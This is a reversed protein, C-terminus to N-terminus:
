YVIDFSDFMKGHMDEPAQADWAVDVREVRSLISGRRLKAAYNELAPKDGQAYAEVSGDALNRVYGVLKLARAKRTAFDRYMVMQVRGYIRCYISAM